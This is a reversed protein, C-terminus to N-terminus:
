SNIPSFAHGPHRIFGPRRYVLAEPTRVPAGGVDVIEALEVTVVGGADITRGREMSYGPLRPMLGAIFAAAGMGLLMALSNGGGM